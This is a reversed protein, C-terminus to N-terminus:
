AKAESSGSNQNQERYGRHFAPVLLAFRLTGRDRIMQMAEKRLVPAFGRM